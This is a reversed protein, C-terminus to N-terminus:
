GSSLVFRATLIARTANTVRRSHFMGASHYPMWFRVTMWCRIMAMKANAVSIHIRSITEEHAVETAMM